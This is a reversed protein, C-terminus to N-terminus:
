TTIPLFFEGGHLTQKGDIWDESTQKQQMKENLLSLIKSSSPGTILVQGNPNIHVKAGPLTATKKDKSMQPTYGATHLISWVINPVPTYTALSKNVEGTKVLDLLGRAEVRDKEKEIEPLESYAIWMKEWRERIEKDVQEAAHVSWGCWMNHIAEALKEVVADDSSEALSKKVPFFFGKEMGELMKKHEKEQELIHRIKKAYLTNGEKEYKALQKEYDVIGEEEDAIDSEIAQESKMFASVNSMSTANQSEQAEEDLEEDPSQGTKAIEPIPPTRGDGFGKKVPLYFSM